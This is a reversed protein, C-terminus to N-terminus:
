KEEQYSYEDFKYFLLFMRKVQFEQDDNQVHPYIKINFMPLESLKKAFELLQEETNAWMTIVIRPPRNLIDHFFKVEEPYKHIMSSIRKEVMFYLDDTMKKRFEWNVKRDYDREMYTREIAHLQM